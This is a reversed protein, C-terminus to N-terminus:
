SSGSRTNWIWGIIFGVIGGLVTVLLINQTVGLLGLIAGIVLGAITLYLVKSQM